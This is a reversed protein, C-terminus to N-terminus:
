SASGGSGGADYGPEAVDLFPDGCPSVVGFPPGPNLAEGDPTAPGPAFSHLSLRMARLFWSVLCADMYARSVYRLSLWFCM